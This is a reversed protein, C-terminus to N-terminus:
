SSMVGIIGIGNVKIMREEKWAVREEEVMWREVM